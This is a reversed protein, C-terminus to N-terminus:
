CGGQVLEWGTLHFTHCLGAFSVGYVRRTGCYIRISGDHWRWMECLRTVTRTGNQAQFRAWMLRTGHIIPAKKKEKM